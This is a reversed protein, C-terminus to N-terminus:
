ENHDIGFYHLRIKYANPDYSRFESPSQEMELDPEEPETLQFYQPCLSEPFLYTATKSGNAYLNIDTRLYKKSLNLIREFSYNYEISIGMTETIEYSFSHAAILANGGREVYELLSALEDEQIDFSEAIILLNYQDIMEDEELSMIGEYSHIYGKEWSAKLLKDFAYGGYPQKDNKSFTPQWRYNIASGRNIWYMLLFLLVMTGIYIITKKM